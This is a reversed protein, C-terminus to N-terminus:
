KKHVTLLELIKGIERALDKRGIVLDVMGHQQLHEAKQFGEPLEERITEKIVRAGAFGITAGPEAIHIDGLMAFSASVGGTTPDTLLVIYPLGASKVQSIAITTRPMQMMSLIGEQMRAGGSAAAIILPAKIEVAVTAATVLSEGVAIGMSGGMFEFDFAAVITQIGNIKGRAVIVADREKTKEQSAKLRDTYKKLDKFNLPDKVVKPTKVRTYDGGDFLYELRKQASIRMHNKCYRCVFQNEELDRHFLMQECSLCRTWLNDPVDKKKVLAQLKPRVFHTLWSLRYEENKLVLAVGIIRKVGGHFLGV